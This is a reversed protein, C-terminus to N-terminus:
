PGNGGATATGPREAAAAPDPEPLAMAQPLGAIADLLGHLQRETAALAAIQRDLEQLREDLGASAERIRDLADIRRLFVARRAELQGRLPDVVARSWASVENRADAFVAQVRDSLAQAMREAVVPQALRLRQSLDLHPLWEGAVQRLDEAQRALPPAPTTQLSFGLGANLGRFSADLMAHLEAAGTAAQRLLATLRDIAQDYRRGIGLKLGGRRLAESLEALVPHVADPELPALCDRLLRAHVTRISHIRTQGAEFARQESQVRERTGAIVGINKGRLARLELAQEDLDRRQINAQRAAGARLEDVLAAVAESLLTRRRGLLEDALHAELAPLGSADLAAADGAIRAVLADRASVPLVRAAPVGLLGGVSALQRAVATQVQQPTGLPDRLLDAKNLVALRTDARGATPALQDRWLELDSRSVGIDAGLVFVVAHAQARLDLTLEPEVGVANLGPTDMVVLGRRLLPHDINVLAHRWTPVEVPRGADPGTRSGPAEGDGFGLARAAAAPMRRVQAVRELAAAMGAPDAPDFPLLTWAEPEARWASLPRPDLRSDIPLLRICPPLAPDHGFETPCMTTRGARAPVIRQGSGAFLLANILESKGRSFEAVFAVLLRDNQLWQVLRRLPAQTAADSLRQADLWHQLRDLREATAHRWAGYADLSRDLPVPV